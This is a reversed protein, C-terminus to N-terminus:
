WYTVLQRALKYRRPKTEMGRRDISSVRVTHASRNGVSIRITNEADEKTLDADVDLVHITTESTILSEKKAPSETSTYSVDGQSEYLRFFLALRDGRRAIEEDQWDNGEEDLLNM